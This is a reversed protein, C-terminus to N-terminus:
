SRRARVLRSALQRAFRVDGLKLATRIRCADSLRRLSPAKVFHLADKAETHKGRRNFAIARNLHIVDRNCGELRLANQYAKEAKVYGGAHSYCNGLLEWLIWVRGARAVGEELVAITNSLRESRLYALALIEFASSHRLKKLRRGVKLAAEYRCEDILSFGKEMLKTTQQLRDM